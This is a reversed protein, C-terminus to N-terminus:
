VPAARNGDDMTCVTAVHRHGIVLQGYHKWFITHRITGAVWKVLTVIEEIDGAGSAAFRCLSFGVGHIREDIRAPIVGAVGARVISLSHDILAGVVPHRYVLVDAADLMGDQVQ